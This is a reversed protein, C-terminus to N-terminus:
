PEPPWPRTAEATIWNHIWDPLDPNWDPTGLAAAVQDTPVIGKRSTMASRYLIHSAAEGRRWMTQVVYFFRADRGVCRTHMTFRDFPRLRKRYRVSAGAMAFGWRNARMVPFLGARAAAPIRGLDYITLIRGNNMELNFDVDHPWCIHHSVHLADLPIAPQFYRARVMEKILRLVPYM